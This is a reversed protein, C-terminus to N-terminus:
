LRRCMLIGKGIPVIVTDVRDDNLARDLVPALIDQHSIANDAVLLGGVVLAGVVLEYFESYLEKEADLFCFAIRDYRPIYERADGEVLEVTGRM